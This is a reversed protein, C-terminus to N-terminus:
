YIQENMSVRSEITKKEYFNTKDLEAYVKRDEELQNVLSEIEKEYYEKGYEQSEKKEKAEEDNKWWDKNSCYWDITRKFGDNFKILPLWGLSKIKSSDMSYRYDNNPRDKVYKILGM